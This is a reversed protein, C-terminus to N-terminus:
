EKILAARLPAGDTKSKMPLGTFIYTGPAVHRLDLGEIVTMQENAKRHAKHDKHNGNFKTLSLYDIGITTVEKDILYNVAELTLYTFDQRFQTYQHNANDTKLLIIPQEIDKNSLHSETVKDKCGTMDLVQANGYFNELSIENVTKGNKKIHQPADVHTGTHSGINIESETTTDEPIQSYKSISPSPNGPYTIMKEDVTLTIDIIDM